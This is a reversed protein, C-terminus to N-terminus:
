EALQTASAPAAREDRIQPYAGPWDWCDVALASAPLAADASENKLNGFGDMAFRVRGSAALMLSFSPGATRGKEISM